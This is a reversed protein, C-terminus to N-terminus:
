QFTKLKEKKSKFQDMILVKLLGTIRYKKIKWNKLIKLFWKM